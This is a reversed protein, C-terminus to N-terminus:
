VYRKWDGDQNSWQIKNILDQSYWRDRWFTQGVRCGDDVEAYLKSILDINEFNELANKSVRFKCENGNSYVSLFHIEFFDTIEYIIYGERNEGDLVSDFSRYVEKKIPKKEKKIRKGAAM